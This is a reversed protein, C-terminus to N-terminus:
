LPQRILLLMPPYRDAVVAGTAGGEVGEDAAAEGYAGRRIGVMIPDGHLTASHAWEYSRLRM